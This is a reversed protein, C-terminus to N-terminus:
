FFLGRNVLVHKGILDTKVLCFWGMLSYIEDRFIDSLHGALGGEYDNAPVTHLPTLDAVLLSPPSSLGQNGLFQDGWRVALQMPNQFAALLDSTPGTFGLATTAEKETSFIDM